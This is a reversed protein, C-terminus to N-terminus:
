AGGRAPTQTETPHEPTTHGSKHAPAPTGPNRESKSTKSTSPDEETVTLCLASAQSELGLTGEGLCAPLQRGRGKSAGPVKGRPTSVLFNLGLRSIRREALRGSSGWHFIARFRM